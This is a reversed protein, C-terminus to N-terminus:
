VLLPLSYLTIDGEGPEEEEEQQQEEVEQAVRNRSRRRGERGKRWGTNKFVNM